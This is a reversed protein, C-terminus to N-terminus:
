VPEQGTFPDAIAVGHFKRYEQVEALVSLLWNPSVTCWGDSGSVGWKRECDAIGREISSDAVRINKNIAKWDLKILQANTANTANTESM